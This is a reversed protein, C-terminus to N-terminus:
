EVSITTKSRASNCACISASVRPRLISSQKDAAYSRHKAISILLVSMRGDCADRLTFGRVRAVTFNDLIKNLLIVLPPFYKTDLVM